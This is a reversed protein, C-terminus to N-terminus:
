IQYKLSFVMPYYFFTIRDYYGRFNAYRFSAEVCAHFHPALEVQGGAQVGASIGPYVHDPILFGIHGGFFFFMQSSNTKYNVILAPNVFANIYKLQFWDITLGAQFRKAEHAFKIGFLAGPALKLEEPYSVERPESYPVLGIRPSISFSQGFATTCVLIAYLAFLYRM